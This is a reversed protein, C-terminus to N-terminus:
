GKKIYLVEHILRFFHADIFIAISTLIHAVNNVQGKVHSFDIVRIIITPVKCDQIVGVIEAACSSTTM